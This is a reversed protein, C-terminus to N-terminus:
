VGCIAVVYTVLFQFWLLIAFSLSLIDFIVYAFKRNKVAIVTATVGLVPIVPILSILNVLASMLSVFDFLSENKVDYTNGSIHVLVMILGWM